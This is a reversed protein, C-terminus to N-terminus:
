ISMISPIVVEASVKIAKNEQTTKDKYHGQWPSM